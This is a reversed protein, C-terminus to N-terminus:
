IEALTQLAKEKILPEFHEEFYSGSAYTNRLPTGYEGTINCIKNFEEPSHGSKHLILYFCGKINDKYVTNVGNYINDISCALASLNELTSFSYVKIIDTTIKTGTTKPRPELGLAEPLSIFDAEQETESQMDPTFSITDGDDEIYGDIVDSDINDEIDFAYENDEYLM